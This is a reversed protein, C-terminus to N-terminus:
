DGWRRVTDRLLQLLSKSEMGGLRSVKLQLELICINKGMRGCEKTDMNFDVTLFKQKSNTRKSEM